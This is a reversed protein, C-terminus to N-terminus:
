VTYLFTPTTKTYKANYYGHKHKHSDVLVKYFLVQKKDNYILKKKYNIYLSENDYLRKILNNEIVSNEITVAGIFVDQLKILTTKM